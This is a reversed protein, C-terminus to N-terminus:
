PGTTTTTPATTTSTTTTTTTTTPPTTTTTPPITTTTTTTAPAVARGVQLGVASAPAVLNGATPSQSIVRGDNPDGAPVNVLTVNATLGKATLQNKAQAETLGV